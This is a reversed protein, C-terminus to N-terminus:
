REPGQQKLFRQFESAIADGSPLDGPGLPTTDVEATQELREVFAQVEPDSQVARSVQREYEASANELETGNVTVGVLGEVKRVLALAAKPNPAAAVYHPVSAWLSAAPM